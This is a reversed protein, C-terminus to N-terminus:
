GVMPLAPGMELGARWYLEARHRDFHERRVEDGPRDFYDWPIHRSNLGVFHAGCRGLEPNRPWFPSCISVEDLGVVLAPGDRHLAAAQLGQEDLESTLVVGPKELLSARLADELDFEPPLGRIGSNIAVAVRADGQFQGLCRETDAAMLTRDDVDMWARMARPVDWLVCDNDLSLEHMGAFMRVPLLKWATGESMAATSGSGAGVLHPRLWGPMEAATVEVWLVVAPLEGALERARELGVTNVVIAYEADVGFLRVACWVSLRLAEWGRASVDGVTWRVGLRLGADERVCECLAGGDRRCEM